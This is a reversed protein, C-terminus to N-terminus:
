DSPDSEISVRGLFVLFFFFSLFFFFFFSLFPSLPDDWSLFDASRSLGERSDLSPVGSAVIVFASSPALSPPSITLSSLPIVFGSEVGILSSFGIVGGSIFGSFSSLFTSFPTLSGVVGWYVILLVM